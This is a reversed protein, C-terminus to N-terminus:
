FFGISLISKIVLNDSPNTIGFGVGTHWIINGKKGFTFDIAPFIYTKQESFSKLEALEGMKTYFEIGPQISMWGKYYYGGNLAFEVGEGVDAGSVKKEFTPNLVFTHFGYDIELIVKFELEEANKYEKKPMIYELYMALDIPREGKEYFRYHAMLAKTKIWRLPQGAPQEFDLYMGLTWHNSIGYELELSHAMLNDRSVDEGFFSYTQNSSPIASLWYVIEKEKAEATAYGYVKYLQAFSNISIIMLLFTLIKKNM